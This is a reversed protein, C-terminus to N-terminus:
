HWPQKYHTCRKSASPLRILCLIQFFFDKVEKEKKKKQYGQDRESLRQSKAPDLTEFLIDLKIKRKM